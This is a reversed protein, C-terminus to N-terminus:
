STDDDCEWSPLDMPPALRGNFPDPNPAPRPRGAPKAPKAAPAPPAPEKAAPGGPDLRDAFASRGEAWSRRRDTHYSRDRLAAPVYARGGRGKVGIIRGVRVIQDDQPQDLFGPDRADDDLQEDLEASLLQADTPEYESWILRDVAYRIKAKRTEVAKESLAAADRHADRALKTELAISMRLVRGAKSVASILACLDQADETAAIAVHAKEAAHMAIAQFRALDRAHAEARDPPLSM